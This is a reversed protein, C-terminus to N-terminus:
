KVTRIKAAALIESISALVEPNASNINLFGVQERTGNVTQFLDGTEQMFFVGSNKQAKTPTMKSSIKKDKLGQRLEAASLNTNALIKWRDKTMEGRRIYRAATALKPVSTKFIDVDKPIDKVDLYKGSLFVEWDLMYMDAMQSGLNYIERAYDYFGASYAQTFSKPLGDWNEKFYLLIQGLAFKSIEKNKAWTTGIKQLNQLGALSPKSGLDKILSQQDSALKKIEQLFNQASVPKTVVQKTSM